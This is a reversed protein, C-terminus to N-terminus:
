RAGTARPGARGDRTSPDRAPAGRLHDLTANMLTPLHLVVGYHGCDFWRLEPRGYAEWLADTCARPIIEDRAANLMLVDERAVRGAFTLPDVHRVAERVLEPDLKPARARLARAEPSEALVRPLDGGGIVLVTRGLRPDVGRAIAGVIAGLSVGVLGVREPDVEPRTRLFDAARIVDLAAQRFGLLSGLPDDERLFGQRTGPERRAGYNPLSIFFASVGHIALHRALWDEAEFGGGLHHIVVAAPRADGPKADRARYYTGHVEPWREKLPSAFRVPVGVYKPRVLPAGEHIAFREAPVAYHSLADALAPDRPAGAPGHVPLAPSLGWGAPAAEAPQALAPAAALLLAAFLSTGALALARM